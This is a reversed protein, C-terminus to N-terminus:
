MKVQSEMKLFIKKIGNLHGIMEKRVLEGNQNLIHEYILKHGKLSLSKTKLKPKLLNIEAHHLDVVSELTVGLIPNHSAKAISKHFEINLDDEYSREMLSEENKKSNSMKKIFIGTEDIIKKMEVLDSQTRRKAALVATAPELIFRVEFINEVTLEGFHLYDLLSNKVVDLDIGKVFTGGGAGKKVHLFGHIELMRIAERITVRSTKFKESLEVESPLRDGPILKRSLIAKKIQETIHTSIRGGRIPQLFDEM